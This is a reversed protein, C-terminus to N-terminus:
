SKAPMAIRQQEIIEFMDESQLDQLQMMHDWPLLRPRAQPSTGQLLHQGLTVVLDGENIGRVATAMRGSAITQVAVFRVPQAPAIIGVGEAEQQNLALENGETSPSVIYIGEIGTRPDRYLASNPVLVAADSQGYLIDVTVFMGPRLLNQPNDMEVFAQTRMTNVDLFPSIRSISSTMTRGEWSTSTVNVPVGIGIYDLMRDSLMLEIRMSSLEGIVFLRSSAGALQGVEANRQGITGSIPARITANQVQVLREEVLSRAQNEQAVRLDLDAQAIALQSRVNELSVGSDLNREVLTETRTAQSRILDLNARAQATQARSIELGSLAQQYREQFEADRLRVLPDGAKVEDGNEVYIEAILGSAEPFIETQNRAIVRGTVREELPLTGIIARVVEVAPITGSRNFNGGGGGRGGFGGGGGGFGGGGQQSQQQGGGAATSDSSGSDCASLLILSLAAPLLGAYKM